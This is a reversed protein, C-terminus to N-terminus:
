ETKFQQDLLLLACAFDSVTDPNGDSVPILGEPFEIGAHKLLEVQNELRLLEGYAQLGVALMRRVQSITEAEMASRIPDSNRTSASM